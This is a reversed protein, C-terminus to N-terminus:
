GNKGTIWSKIRQHFSVKILASDLNPVVEQKLDPEPMPPLENEAETIQEDTINNFLGHDGSSERLETMSTATDILGDQHAAIVTETNTKAITAKDMASMQWLPVFTFQLDEPMPVGFTSRYLVDLLTEWPNRLTSEQEANIRDYYMRIDAEGTANLGAPSQGFLRVLPIGCAGSLQQAFQILVDPIGAFSYQTSSFLDNKDLLTLGENSQFARIMEFMQILGEKAKGGAAIIERLGDIQVTRLNARDVLNATALTTDDFSLLRDWLRELVSEGWMMETIAQFFPLEIGIMRICRSHHVTIQGTPTANTSFNGANNGLVINYYEPLGMDPGEQILNTLDPNLQWRDYSSIGLFSGQQITEKDLPTALDEGKIQMVAIAGGYLRAWKKESCISKWIGLRSIETQLKKVNEAGENTTINIGARTMDEAWADIVQGVIWSGRYAAELQTRNRTLLNFQYHSVSLQNQPRAPNVGVRSVFNVFGDATQTMEAAKDATKFVESEM